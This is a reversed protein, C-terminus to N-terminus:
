AAHPDDEIRAPEDRSRAVFVRLVQNLRGEWDPRGHQFHDIIDADLHLSVLRKPSNREEASRAHRALTEFVEPSLVERAPRMAAFEEDTIDPNDSVEDWDEQSYHPNPRYGPAPKPGNTAM